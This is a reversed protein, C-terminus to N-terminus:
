WKKNSDTFCKVVQERLKKQLGQWEKLIKEREEAKASKLKQYVYFAGELDAKAVQEPFHTLSTEIFDRHYDDIIQKVKQYDEARKEDESVVRKLGENKFEEIYSATEGVPKLEFRLTKQLSYLNFFETDFTRTM